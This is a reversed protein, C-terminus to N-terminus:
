TRNEGELRPGDTPDDVGIGLAHRKEAARRLEILSSFAVVLDREDVDLMRVIEDHAKARGIADVDIADRVKESRVEDPRGRESGRREHMAFRRAAIWLDRERM